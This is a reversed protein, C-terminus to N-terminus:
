RFFKEIKKSRTQDIAFKIIWHSAYREICKTLEFNKKQNIESFDNREIANINNQNIQNSDNSISNKENDDFEFEIRYFSKVSIIKFKTSENRFEIITSKKKMKLLNYSKQWTNAHDAVNKRFMLVSSNLSFDHIAITSFENRTNFADNMQRLVILRKIENMIKRMAATRQTLISSSANLEIMRFYVDFVFLTFMLENFDILDNIIKFTMQLTM